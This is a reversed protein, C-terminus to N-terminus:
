GRTCKTSSSDSKGAKQLRSYITMFIDGYHPYGPVWSEIVEACSRVLATQLVIQLPLPDPDFAERLFKTTLTQVLPEGIRQIARERGEESLVEDRMGWDTSDLSDAMFASIQLIEANLMHVMAIVDAGSLSDEKMLFM